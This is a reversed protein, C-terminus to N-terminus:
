IFFSILYLLCSAMLLFVSWFIKTNPRVMAISALIFSLIFTSRLIYNFNVKFDLIFPMTCVIIFFGPLVLVILFKRIKDFKPNEKKPFIELHHLHVPEDKASNTKLNLKLDASKSVQLRNIHHEKWNIYIFHGIVSIPLLMIILAFLTDDYENLYPTNELFNPLECLFLVLFVSYYISKWMKSTGDILVIVFAVYVITAFTAVGLFQYLEKTDLSFLKSLQYLIFGLPILFLSVSKLNLPKKNQIEDIDTKQQESFNNKVKLRM